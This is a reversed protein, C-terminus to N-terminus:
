VAIVAIMATPIVKTMRVPPMSKDTPEVTPSAAILAPNRILRPTWSGKRPTETKKLMGATMTKTRHRPITMPAMLPTSTVLNLTAGNM